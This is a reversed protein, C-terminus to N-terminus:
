LLELIIKNNYLGLAKSIYKEIVLKKDPSNPSEQLIEITLVKFLEDVSFFSAINIPKANYINLCALAEMVERILSDDISMNYNVNSYKMAMNIGGNLNVDLVM